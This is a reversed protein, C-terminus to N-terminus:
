DTKGAARVIVRPRREIMANLVKRAEDYAEDGPEVVEGTVRGKLREVSMEAVMYKGGETTQNSTHETRYSTEGGASAWGDPEDSLRPPVGEGDRRARRVQTGEPPHGRVEVAHLDGRPKRARRARLRPARADSRVRRGASSRCNVRDLPRDEA